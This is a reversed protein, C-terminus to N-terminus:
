VAGDALLDGDLENILDSALQDLERRRRAHYPSPAETLGHDLAYAVELRDQDLRQAEILAETIARRADSLAAVLASTRPTRQAM